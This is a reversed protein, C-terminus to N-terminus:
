DGKAGLFELLGNNTRLTEYLMQAVLTVIQEEKDADLGLCSHGVIVHLIEHLLTSQTRSLGMGPRLLIVGKLQNCLGLATDVPADTIGYASLKEQTLPEIPFVDGVVSVKKPIGPLKKTKKNIKKMKKM